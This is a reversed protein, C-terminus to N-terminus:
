WCMPIRMKALQEVDHYRVICRTLKEHETTESRRRTNKDPSVFETMQHLLFTTPWTRPTKRNRDALSTLAFACPLPVTMQNRRSVASTHKIFLHFVGVRVQALEDKIANVVEHTVLHCGRQRQKLTIEKQLWISAATEMKSDTNLSPCALVYNLSICTKLLRRRIGLAHCLFGLKLTSKTQSHFCNNFLKPTPSLVM